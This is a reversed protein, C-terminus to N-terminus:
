ENDHFTPSITIFHRANQGTFHHLNHAFRMCIAAALFAAQARFPAPTDAM